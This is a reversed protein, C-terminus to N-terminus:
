LYFREILRAYDESRSGDADYIVMSTERLPFVDRGFVLMVRKPTGGQKSSVDCRENVLLGKQGACRLMEEAEGSPLILALRGHPALLRAAAAALDDFSLTLGAQRAQARRPEPCALSNNYFPPNSVILDYEGERDRVDGECARLHGNWPSAAFNEAAQRVSAADIDIGEVQWDAYGRLLAASGDAMMEELRQAVMLAIIGCGTGADLVRYVRNKDTECGQPEAEENGRSEAALPCWAGLLVGDTGVRMSSTDHRVYFRKMQFGPSSM